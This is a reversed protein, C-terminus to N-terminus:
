KKYLKSFFAEFMPPLNSHAENELRKSIQVQLHLTRRCRFYFGFFRFFRKCNDWLYIFGRNLYLAIPKVNHKSQKM